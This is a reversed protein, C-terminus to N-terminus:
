GRHTRPIWAPVRACYADYQTGYRERLVPEEYWRAFAAMLALVFAAYALLVPQALLLAQGTIIAVVAPVDPQPRLPELRTGRARGHARDSGSDRDRRDCLSRVHRDAGRRRV